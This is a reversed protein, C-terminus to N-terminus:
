GDINFYKWAGGLYMYLRAATTAATNTNYIAVASGNKKNPAAAALLTTASASWSAYLDASKYPVDRGFFMNQLGAEVNTSNVNPLGAM